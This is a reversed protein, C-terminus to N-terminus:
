GDYKGYKDDCYANYNSDHSENYEMNGAENIMVHSQTSTDHIM